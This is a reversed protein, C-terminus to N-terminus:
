MRPTSRCSPRQLGLEESVARKIVQLFDLNSFGDASPLYYGGVSRMDFEEAKEDLLYSNVFNLVAALQQPNADDTFDKIADHFDDYELRWDQHFYCAFFQRVPDPM